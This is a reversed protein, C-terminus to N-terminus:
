RLGTYTVKGTFVQDGLIIRYIYMGSIIAEPTFDAKYSVGEEAMGNFVTRVLRGNLDYIDIRAAADIPSVFEFKLRESFPNPYVKLEAQEVEPLIEISKTKVSVTEETLYCGGIEFDDSCICEPVTKGASTWNNSYWIGGKTKARYVTVGVKDCTEGKELDLVMTCNGEISIITGDDLLEVVNAKATFHAKPCGIALDAIANSTILYTHEAGDIIGQPNNLSSILLWVKGKPQDAGRVKTTESYKVEFNLVTQYDDGTMGKVFGASHDNCLGVTGTIIGGAQPRVITVPCEMKEPKGTYNGTVLVRLECTVGSESGIDIQALAAATGGLSINNPDVYNVPLNTAGPIKEWGNGKDIEFSLLATRIDGAEALDGFESCVQAVNNRITASLMITATGSNENQTFAFKPGTYYLIGSAGAAQPDINLAAVDSIVTGCTGTVEVYYYFTGAETCDPWFEPSTADAVPIGNTNSQVDNQYWQYSLNRGSAVVDFKALCGYKILADSPQQTIETAPWMWIKFSTYGTPNCGGEAGVQYIVSETPAVVISEGTGIPTGVGWEGEYWAWYADPNTGLDGGSIKLTVQTGPCVRDGYISTESDSIVTRPTVSNTFVTILLMSEDDKCDGTGTVTYTITATGPAIGTVLGTSNVSVVNKDSSSWSGTQDGNSTLQSTQNICIGTTGDLTGADPVDDVHIIAEDSNECGTESDTVTFILTNDGLYGTPDFVYGNDIDGKVGAGQWVGGTPLAVNGDDVCVDNFSGADAIPLSNNRLVVEDFDTCSGNTLTWRLTIVQDFPVNTVTTTEWEKETIQAVGHEGVFEWIGSPGIIAAKTSPGITFTSNDCQSQDEGAYAPYFADVHIITEDSSTCGNNDTYTYKLMNDGVNGTPDFVYGDTQNGGVGTGEWIGETPSGALTVNGADECVPDFTGAVVTPLPNVTVTESENLDKNCIDDDVNTLTLTQNETVGTITIAALGSGDLGVTSTTSGGDLSYTVTADATGELYFIVDGGSCVPSNSATTAFSADPTTNVTVDVETRESECAAVTQSVYYTGTSLEDTENLPSGDVSVAYWNFTAGEAGSAFLNSVLHSESSCFSQADSTPADPPTCEGATVTIQYEAKNWDNCPPGGMVVYYITATGVGIGGVVGEDNVTAIDPNSCLWSGGPVSSILSTTEGVMIVNNGIIEGADPRPSIHIENSIATAYGFCTTIKCSVVDGPELDGLTIAQNGAFLNGNHNWEYSIDGGSPNVPIATFTVSTGACLGDSIITVSPLRFIEPVLFPYGDNWAANMGWITEFDWDVDPPNSFTTLTKMVFTTKGVGAASTNTGSTQIDWFSNTTITTGNDLDLTGVLGGMGEKVSGTSYCNTITAEGTTLGVLGGCSQVTSTNTVSCRSYSDKITSWNNKGVLGGTSYNGIVEGTSYSKSIIAEQASGVLGGTIDSCNVTGESHFCNAVLVRAQCSGVLGGTYSVGNVDCTSYSNRITTNNNNYNSLYGALGGTNYKGKVIGTSYCNDITVSLEAYGLLAGTKDANEVDIYVDTIGLNKFEANLAHGFLGYAAEESGTIKLGSIVHNQGDYHGSFFAIPVWGGTCWEATSSADIDATQVFYKDLDRVDPNVVIWYLNELTAIQYPDSETGDGIAPATATPGAEVMIFGDTTADECSTPTGTTSVTFNFTGSETPTGSITFTKTDNDYVGSLGEPLKPSVSAGTAGGGVTYTIKTIPSNECINQENNASNLTLTGDTCGSCSYEYSASEVYLWYPSRNEIKLYRSTENLTYHYEAFNESNVYIRDVDTYDTGNASESINAIPSDWGTAKSMRVTVPGFLTLNDGTLDLAIFEMSGIAAYAEDPPGVAGEQNMNNDPDFYSHVGVASGTCMGTPMVTIKGTKIDNNCPDAGTTNVTFEFIGTVAPTGSITFIGENLNVILGIPLGDVEAGTAGGGVEYEINTIATNESVTQVDNSSLLALTGGVCDSCTYTVSEVYLWYPSNNYIRLYRTADSIVLNYGNVENNGVGLEVIQNWDMGNQSEYVIVDPPNDYYSWNITVMNSIAINDGTLDLDINEGNGIAASNGDPTGIANNPSMNGDPDYYNFVSVAAGPCIVEAFAGPLNIKDNITINNHTASFLSNGVAWTKQVSIFFLFLSTLLFVLKKM